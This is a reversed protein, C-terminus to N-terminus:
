EELRIIVSHAVARESGNSPKNVVQDNIVLTSSAGGDLYAAYECGELIMLEAAENGSIGISVAPIRGDIVKFVIKHDKTVGVLTRPAPATTPGTFAESDKAVNQGDYVLWGGTQFAEEVNELGNSLAFSIVVKEGLKFTPTEDETLQTLVYESNKLSIPVDTVIIDKVRQNEILYNISKRRIRTTLGYVSDYLVWTNNLASRNTGLLDIRTNEGKVQGKITIDEISAKGESTVLVTPTYITDMTIVKGDMILLGYTMGLEDYFMGNLGVLAQHSKAMDSTKEFGYLVDFSLVNSLNIGKNKMNVSLTYTTQPRHNLTLHEVKYSIPNIITMIASLLSIAKLIKSIIM